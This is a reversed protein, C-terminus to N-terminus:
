YLLPTPASDETNFTATDSRYVFGGYEDYATVLYSYTTAAGTGIGFMLDYYNTVTSPVIFEAPNDPSTEDVRTIVFYRVTATDPLTSWSLNAGWRNHLSIAEAKMETRTPYHVENSPRSINGAADIAIIQYSYNILAGTNVRFLLDDYTTTTAPVQFGDVAGSDNDMRVVEYNKVGVNDRSGDWTFRLGWTDNVIVEEYRLNTPATPPETDAPPRIKPTTPIGTQRSKDIIPPIVNAASASVLLATVIFGSAIVSVLMSHARIKDVYQSKIKFKMVNDWKFKLPITDHGPLSDIIM